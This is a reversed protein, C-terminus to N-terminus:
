KLIIRIVVQKNIKFSLKFYKLQSLFYRFCLVSILDFVLPELIRQRIGWPFM